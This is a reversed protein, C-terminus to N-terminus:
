NDERGQLNMADLAPVVFIECSEDGELVEQVNQTEKYHENTTNVERSGIRLKPGEQKCDQKHHTGGENPDEVHAESHGEVGEELFFVSRAISFNIGLSTEM